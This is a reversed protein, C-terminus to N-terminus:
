WTVTKTKVVGLSNTIVLSYGDSCADSDSNLLTTTATINGKSTILTHVKTGSIYPYKSSCKVKNVVFPVALQSYFINGARNIGCVEVKSLSKTSVVSDGEVTYNIGVTSDKSWTMKRTVVWTRTSDTGSFNIKMNGRVKHIINGGTYTTNNLWYNTPLGGSVNTVTHTGTLTTSIGSRERVSYGLYSITYIAGKDYFHVVNPSLEVKISGSRYSGDSYMLTSNYNMIKVNSANHAISPSAYAMDVRGSPTGGALLTNVDNIAGELNSSVSNADSAQTTASTEESTSISPSLSEVRKCSVFIIALASLSLIIKLFVKKM